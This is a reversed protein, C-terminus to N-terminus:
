GLLSVGNKMTVSEKFIGPDVVVTDGASAANIAEQITAFDGPVHISDALTTGTFTFIFVLIPAFCIAMKNGSKTRMNHFYESAM